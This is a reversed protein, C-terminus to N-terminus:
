TDRSVRVLGSLGGLIGRWLIIRRGRREEERGRGRGRESEREEEEEKVAEDARWVLLNMAGDLDKWAVEEMMAMLVYTGEESEGREGGM